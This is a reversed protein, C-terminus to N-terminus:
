QFPRKRRQWYWSALTIILALIAIILAREPLNALAYKWGKSAADSIFFGLLMPLWSLLLRRIPFRM